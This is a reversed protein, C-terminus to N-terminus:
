IRRIQFALLHIRKSYNKKGLKEQKYREWKNKQKRERERRRGEGGAEAKERVWHKGEAKGEKAAVQWTNQKEGCM